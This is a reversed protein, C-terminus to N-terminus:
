SQGIHKKNHEDRDAKLLSVEEQIVRRCMWQLKHFLTRERLTLRSKGRHVIQSRVRYIESFDKLVDARQEHSKGILFACRNRLLEGLGVESNSQEGLLIELAVMTQVFALLENRGCYSDFLWQSALVIREAKEGSDFVIEADPLKERLWHQKKEDSDLFGELDHVVLDRFGADIADDLEHRSDIESKTGTRQHVYFYKSPVTKSYSIRVKFIRLAICVGCFAKLLSEASFTAVSRGYQGIYGDAQIQLYVSDDNWKADARGLLSLLTAGSHIRKDKKENGSLLPFYKAFEGGKPTVLTIRDGFKVKSVVAHLLSSIEPPFEFTLTYSWPLSVFQQLLREASEKLNEYGSVENLQLTPKNSDYEDRQYLDKSIEGDIFSVIPFEGLLALLREHLKGHQPLVLDASILHYLTKRDIFMNNNVAIKSMAENLAVHLKEKASEHLELPM